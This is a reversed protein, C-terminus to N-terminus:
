RSVMSVLQNIKERILNFGSLTDECKSISTKILSKLITGNANSEDCQKFYSLIKEVEAIDPDVIDIASQLDARASRLSEPNNMGSTLVDTVSNIIDVIKGVHSNVTALKVNVEFNDM